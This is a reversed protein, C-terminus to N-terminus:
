CNLMEHLNLGRIRPGWDELDLLSVSAPGIEFRLMLDLPIGLYYAVALRIVDSHSVVAVTGRHEHRTRELWSVIRAQVEHAMEGDPIRTSGRATNFAKWRADTELDGFRRGTWEGFDIEITEPAVCPVLGRQECLAEATERARELPSTYVAEITTGSLRAALARAEERGAENLSVGPARGALSQGVHDCTAHRILLFTTM